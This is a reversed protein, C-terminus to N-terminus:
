PGTTVTAPPPPFYKKRWEEQEPTKLGHCTQKDYSEQETNLATTATNQKTIIFNDLTLGDPKVSSFAEMAKGKAKKEGCATGQASHPKVATLLNAKLDVAAKDTVKFHLQEHELVRASESKGYADIAAKFTTGCDDKKTAATTATPDTADLCDTKDVIAKWGKEAPTMATLSAPKCNKPFTKTCDGAETVKVEQDGFKVAWGTNGNAFAESCQPVFGACQSAATKGMEVAENDFHKKCAKEETNAIGKGIDKVDAKVWSTEQRFFSKLPDFTKPDVSATAKYEDGKKKGAKGLPCTAGTKEATTLKKAKSVKTYDSDTEAAFPSHKPPKAKFDDWTLAAYAIQKRQM